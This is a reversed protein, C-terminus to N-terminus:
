CNRSCWDMDRLVRNRPASNRAASASNAERCIATFAQCGPSFRRPMSARRENPIRVCPIGIQVMSDLIGDPDRFTSREHDATGVHISTQNGRGCRFPVVILCTVDVAGGFADDLDLHLGGQQFEEQNKGAPFTVQEQCRKM